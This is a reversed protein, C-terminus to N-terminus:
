QIIETIQLNGQAVAPVSCDGVDTFSYSLVAGSGYQCSGTCSTQTVTGDAVNCPGFDCTCINTGDTIQFSMDSSGGTGGTKVFMTAMQIISTYSNTGGPAPIQFGGYSAATLIGDVLVEDLPIPNRSAWTSNCSVYTGNSSCKDTSGSGFHIFAGNVAAQFADASSAAQSIISNGEIRTATGAALAVGMLGVFLGAAFVLATKMTRVSELQPGYDGFM